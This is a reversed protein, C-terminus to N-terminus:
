ADSIYDFGCFFFGDQHESTVEFNKVLGSFMSIFPHAERFDHGLSENGHQENWLVRKKEMAEKLEEFSLFDYSDDNSQLTRFNNLEISEIHAHMIFNSVTVSILMEFDVFAQQELKRFDDNNSYVSVQM